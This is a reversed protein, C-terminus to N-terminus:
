LVILLFENIYTFLDYDTTATSSFLIKNNVLFFAIVTLWVRWGPGESDQKRGPAVPSRLPTAVKFLPIFDRFTKVKIISMRLYM